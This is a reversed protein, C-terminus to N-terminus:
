YKYKTGRYPDQLKYKDILDKNDLRTQYSIRDRIATEKKIGSKTLKGPEKLDLVNRVYDKGAQIEDNKYAKYYESFTEYNQKSNLYAQVYTRGANELQKKSYVDMKGNPYTAFTSDDPKKGTTKEIAEYLKETRKYQKEVADVAMKNIATQKKYEKSIQKLEKVTKRKSRKLGAPTLSGDKRQYRRVGWKMGLVGHHYLEQEM